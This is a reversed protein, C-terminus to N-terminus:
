EEENVILPKTREEREKKKYAKELRNKFEKNDFKHYEALKDILEDDVQYYRYNLLISYIVQRITM